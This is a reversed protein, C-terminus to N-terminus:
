PGDPYSIRRRYEEISQQGTGDAARLRILYEGEPLLGRPLGLRLGGSDSLQLDGSRFVDKGETDLFRVEYNEHTGLDPSAFILVFYSAAPPVEIEILDRRSSRTLEDVYFLPLNVQPRSLQAVQQELDATSRQLQNVWVSLGVVAVLLSAALAVPWRSVGPARSSTEAARIRSQLGRWAAELGLNSVGEPAADPKVLPDLDLVATACERCAALHDRVREDADPQLADTLYDVLEDLEPHDGARELADEILIARFVESDDQHDTTM